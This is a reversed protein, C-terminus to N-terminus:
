ITSVTASCPGGSNHASTETLSKVTASAIEAGEYGLDKLSVCLQDFTKLSEYATKSANAACRNSALLYLAVSLLRPVFMMM